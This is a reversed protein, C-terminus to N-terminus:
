HYHVYPNTSGAEFAHKLYDEYRGTAGARELAEEKSVGQLFLRVGENYAEWKAASGAELEYMWEEGGRGRVGSRSRSVSAGIATGGKPMFATIVEWVHVPTSHFVRTSAHSTSAAFEDQTSQRRLTVMQPHLRIAHDCCADRQCEPNCVVSLRLERGVREMAASLIPLRGLFTYRRMGVSGLDGTVASGSVVSVNCRTPQMKEHFTKSAAVAYTAHRVCPRSANFSAFVRDGLFHDVIGKNALVADTAHTILEDFAKEITGLNAECTRLINHLNTQVLTLRSAKPKLLAISRSGSGGAEMMTSRSQSAAGPAGGARTSPSLTTSATTSQRGVMALSPFTAGSASQTVSLPAISPLSPSQSQDDATTGDGDCAEAAEAAEAEEVDGAELPLCSRPLYPKYSRLNHLIDEFAQRLAAPLPSEQGAAACAGSGEPRHQALLADASDLDFSAFFLALAEAAETSTAVARREAEVQEAYYRVMALPLLVYLVDCTFHVLAAVHSEKCPPSECDCIPFVGSRDFEVMGVFTFTSDLRTVFAWVVVMGAVVNGFSNPIQLLTCGLPIIIVLPWQRYYGGWMVEYDVILNSVAIGLFLSGALVPEPFRKRVLMYLLPAANFFIMPYYGVITRWSHGRYVLAVVASLASVLLAVILIRIKIDPAGDGEFLSWFRSLCSPSPKTAPSPPRVKM